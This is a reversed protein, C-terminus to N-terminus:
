RAPTILFQSIKKDPTRRMTIAANRTSFAVRGEVFETGHSEGVHATIEAPAGLPGLSAAASRVLQPTLWASFEPTLKTRDVDGRQLAAIMTGIVAIADQRAPDPSATALPSASAVPASSPGSPAASPSPSPSPSPPLLRRLIPNVISGFSVNDANVLVALALKDEPFLIEFSSFGSLGGDHTVFRHGRVVGTQLGFGYDSTDGTTLKTPAAMQEFSARDVARGGALAADWILLDGATSALCGAPGAWGAGEPIARTLPGLAFTTYGYAHRPDSLRPPSDCFTSRMGLPVLLRRTVFRDWPEGTVRAVIAGLLAYNTNSYSYKAGPAFELPQTAYAAIIAGNTTPRQMAPTVYDLPYYDVYGSTQNLLNRVRVSTASAASPVYKFVPDDLSLKRERVLLMIAAAVFQKTVSGIEYITDGRAPVNPALRASGYGQLLVPKGDRMIGISVGPAGSERLYTQAVGAVFADLGDDARAAPPASAVLAVSAIILMAALARFAGLSRM